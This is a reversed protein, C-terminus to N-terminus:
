HLFPVDDDNANRILNQGLGFPIIKDEVLCGLSNPNHTDVCSQRLLKNNGTGKNQNKGLEVIM